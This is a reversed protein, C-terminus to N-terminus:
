MSITFQWSQKPSKYLSLILFQSISAFVKLRMKDSILVWFYWCKISVKIQEEGKLRWLYIYQLPFQCGKTQYITASSSFCLPHLLQGSINPNKWRRQVRTRVVRCGAGADQVLQFGGITCSNHVMAVKCKAQVLQWSCCCQVLTPVWQLLIMLSILTDGYVKLNDFGM